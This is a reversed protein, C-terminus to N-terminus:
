SDKADQRWEDPISIKKDSTKGKSEDESQKLREDIKEIIPLLWKPNDSGDSTVEGFIGKIDAKRRRSYVAIITDGEKILQVSVVTTSHRKPTFFNDGESTNKILEIDRYEGGFEDEEDDDDYQAYSSEDEIVREQATGTYRYGEKAFEIIVAKAVRKMEGQYERTITKDAFAHDAFLVASVVVFIVTFLAHSKKM